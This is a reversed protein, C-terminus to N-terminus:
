ILNMRLLWYKKIVLQYKLASTILEKAADICGEQVLAYGYKNLYEPIDYAYKYGKSYWNSAEDSINLFHNGLL